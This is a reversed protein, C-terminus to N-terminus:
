STPPACANLPTADPSTPRAARRDYRGARELHDFLYGIATPSAPTRLTWKHAGDVEDRGIWVDLVNGRPYKGHPEICVHMRREAAQRGIERCADDGRLMVDNRM